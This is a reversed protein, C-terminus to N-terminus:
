QDFIRVNKILKSDIPESAHSISGILATCLVIAMLSLRKIM